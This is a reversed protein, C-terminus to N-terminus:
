QAKALVSYWANREDFSLKCKAHGSVAYFEALILMAEAFNIPRENEIDYVYTSGDPENRLLLCCNCGTCNAIKTIANYETDNLYVNKLDKKIM